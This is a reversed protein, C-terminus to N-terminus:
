QKAAGSAAPATPSAEGEGPLDPIVGIDALPDSKGEELAMGTASAEAAAAERDVILARDMIINALGILLLMGALGFLGVQLRQIAQVKLEQSQAHGAAAENRRAIARDNRLNRTGTWAM